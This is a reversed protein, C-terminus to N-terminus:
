GLVIRQGGASPTFSYVPLGEWRHAYEAREFVAKLRGLDEEDMGTEGGWQYGLYVQSAGLEHRMLWDATQAAESHARDSVIWCEAGAFNLAMLTDAVGVIVEDDYEADPGGIRRGRRCISDLSFLYLPRGSLPAPATVESRVAAAIPTVNSM